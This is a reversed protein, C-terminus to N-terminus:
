LEDAKARSFVAERKTLIRGLSRPKKCAHIIENLGPFQLDFPLMEVNFEALVVPTFKKPDGLFSMSASIGDDDGARSDVIESRRDVVYDLM